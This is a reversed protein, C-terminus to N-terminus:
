VDWQPMRGKFPMAKPATLTLAHALSAGHFVDHTLFAYRGDGGPRAIRPAGRNFGVLQGLAQLPQGAFGNGVVRHDLGAVADHDAQGAALVTICQEIDEERQLLARWDRELDDGDVEVLLLRPKGGVDQRTIQGFTAHRKM